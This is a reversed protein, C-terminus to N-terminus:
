GDTAAEEREDPDVAPPPVKGNAVRARMLDKDLKVAVDENGLRARYVQVNALVKAVYERTEQIPIREIWDIPDVSPDRPDGFEGIWQRARGPGANYGALTLVYSGSFDEMRDGIYASGMMTNYAPDSLLRKIDCKIKYDRCVHQATVTMVQLLGKAGAGSVTLTNFETEQRAIGLLFATEPPKRLPTYAPFTHVPYAYYFLNKRDAIGAKATRVASQTDGVGEALHALMALEAESKLHYRLQVLFLRSISRDLKAKTSIVIAKAADLKNFRDIEQPTPNEPPTIPFSTRGPEIKQQALLGHFTDRDLTAETFAAIAAPKDKLVEATRGLWYNAKARSLPGDAAKQMTQFHSRARKPDGLYRLALWGAMFSQDKLPNVSLEGAERVIAYALKPNRKRLAAYALTRREIWWEDNNNVVGPETPVTLMIKAAEEIRDARRLAQIRHFVFGWDAGDSAPAAEVLQLAKKDQMFVALRAEARKREVEPLLAIVRKAIAARSQRDDKYRVDDIILRDIRAKHDAITLLNGFRELFGKEFKAALTLDRWAKRAYRQAEDKKGQLLAASALAAFGAAHEPGGKTFAARIDAPSGGGALLAEEMRQTLLRRDPWAPNQDLFAQYEAPTGLGSRLRYWSAIKAAVPNAIRGRHGDGDETRGAAYASVADRLAAADEASLPTALLPAIAKDYRAKHATEDMGPKYPSALVPREPSAPATSAPNAVAFSSAAALGAGFLAATLGYQPLTRIFFLLAPGKQDGAPVPLSGSRDGQLREDSRRIDRM